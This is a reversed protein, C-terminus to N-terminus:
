FTNAKTGERIVHAMAVTNLSVAKGTKTVPTM